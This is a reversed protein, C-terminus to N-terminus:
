GRIEHPQPPLQLRNIYERIVNELLTELPLGESEAQQTIRDQERQTLRISFRQITTM